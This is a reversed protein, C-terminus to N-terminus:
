EYKISILKGDPFKKKWVAEVARHANKSAAFYRKSDRTWIGDKEISFYVVYSESYLVRDFKRYEDSYIKKTAM